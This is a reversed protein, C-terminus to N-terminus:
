AAVDRVCRVLEALAPTLEGADRRRVAVIQRRVAASSVVEIAALTGDGLEDSLASRPLLAIGLGLQVM